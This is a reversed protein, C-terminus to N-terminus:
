YLELEKMTAPGAFRGAGKNQLQRFARVSEAGCRLRASDRRAADSHARSFAVQGREPRGGGAYQLDLLWRGDPRAGDLRPGSSELYSRSAVQALAGSLMGRRGAPSLARRERVCPVSYRDPKRWTHEVLQSM